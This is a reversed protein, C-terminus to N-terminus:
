GPQCSTLISGSNQETQTKGIAKLTIIRADAGYGRADCVILNGGQLQTGTNRSFGDSTFSIISQLAVDGRLTLTGNTMGAQYRLITEPSELTGPNSDDLFVLWGSEWGGSNSCSTGTSSKCLTVRKEQNIASSRAFHLSGIFQNIHNDRQYNQYVTKFSPVALFVLLIAISLTILLEILTFGTNPKATGQITVMERMTSMNSAKLVRNLISQDSNSRMPSM